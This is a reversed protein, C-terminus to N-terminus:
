WLRAAGWFENGWVNTIGYPMTSEYANVQKGNGIYIAIHDSAGYGYFLLDGVKLQSQYSAVSPGSGSWASNSKTSIITNHPMANVLTWQRATNGDLADNGTTLYYAYRVFGSCDLGKVSSDHLSNPDSGDYYGYSPGPTPGHGGGYSYIGSFGCAKQLMTLTLAPISTYSVTTGDCTLSGSSTGGGSSPPPPPPTNGSGSCATLGPWYNQVGTYYVAPVYGTAGHDDGITKAWNSSSYGDVTATGGNVSCYFWNASGGTYLHDVVTSTTSTSSYVPVGGSPVWIPCYYVSGSPTCSDDAPGPATTGCATLNPWYNQVGDFYVANVYGTAGSDDGVTKAWNSSTYGGVTDSGGNQQCYFWNTDGATYLHDVIASTTSTTAYVPVGGSPVWIPCDAVNQGAANNTPTCTAAGAGSSNACAPLGNWYNEVGDFYTANVYGQAGHDDGVTRAWNSSSYGSVTMSGGAQSCFFWNATGGTHLRDVISSGASTSAYIPVGGSPVWVACYYVAQGSANHGATCADSASAPGSWVLLTCMLAFLGLAATILRKM